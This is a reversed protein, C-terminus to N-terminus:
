PEAWPIPMHLISRVGSFGPYADLLAGSSGTLSTFGGTLNNLPDTYYCTGGGYFTTVAHWVPGEGKLGVVGAPIGLENLAGTALGSYHYCVGKGVSCATNMDANAYSLDPELFANVESNIAEGVAPYDDLPIGQDRINQAIQSAASHYYPSRVPDPSSMRWIDPRKYTPWFGVLRPNQALSQGSLSEATATGFPDYSEMDFVTWNARSNALAMNAQGYFWMGTLSWKITNLDRMVSDFTIDSTIARWTDQMKEGFTDSRTSAHGVLANWKLSPDRYGFGSYTSPNSYGCDGYYSPKEGIGGGGGQVVMHGTPDTLMIPNGSAYAFREGATDASTFTALTPDYYRANYYFLSTVHDRIQGTYGRETLMRDSDVSIRNAGYPFNRTQQVVGGQEDTIVTTSGLHNQHIFFLEDTAAFVTPGPPYASPVLFLLFFVFFFTISVLKRTLNSLM